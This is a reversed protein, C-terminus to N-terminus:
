FKWYLEYKFNAFNFLVQRTMLIFLIVGASFIDAKFANYKDGIFAEPSMYFRKTGSSGETEGKTVTAFGFDALKLRLDKDFLINEPKLDLHAINNM